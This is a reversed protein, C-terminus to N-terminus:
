PPERFSSPRPKTGPQSPGTRRPRVALIDSVQPGRRGQTTEFEVGQNETLALFGGGKDM